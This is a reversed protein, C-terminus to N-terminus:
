GDHPNGGGEELGYVLLRATLLPQNGAPVVRRATRRWALTVTASVEARLETTVGSTRQVSYRTRINFFDHLRGRDSYFARRRQLVPRIGSCLPSSASLRISGTRVSEISGCCRGACCFCWRWPLWLLIPSGAPCSSSNAADRCCARRSPCAGLIIAFSKVLQHRCDRSCFFDLAHSLWQTM